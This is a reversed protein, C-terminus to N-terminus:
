SYWTCGTALLRYPSSFLSQNFPISSIPSPLSSISSLAASFFPFPKARHIEVLIKKRQPYECVVCMTVGKPETNDTLITVSVLYPINVREIFPFLQIHKLYSFLTM